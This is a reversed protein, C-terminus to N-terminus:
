KKRKQIETKELRGPGSGAGADMDKYSRYTRGGAKRPMPAPGAGPGGMPPAPMPPMPMQMPPGAQPQPPPPMQVPVGQPMPPQQMNPDMQPQGKGTVITINIDTKGNKKKTRGGSNMELAGLSGGYQKAIRGGVKEQTQMEGDLSTYGGHAKATRASQKFADATPAGKSGVKRMREKSGNAIREQKAHINAYLGGGNKKGAVPLSSETSPGDKKKGFAKYALAGLGGMLLSPNKAIANGAVGLAAYKGVDKLVGGLSKGTRGGKNLGKSSHQTDHKKDMKSKEWAAMSMGYKKALKKDQSEDKASGEWANGGRKYPMPKQQDYGLQEIAPNRPMPKQQQMAQDYGRQMAQQQMPRQMAQSQDGGRNRMSGYQGSEIDKRIDKVSSGGDKRGNRMADLVKSVAVPSPGTSNAMTRKQRNVDKGGMRRDEAALEAMTARKGSENYAGGGDQKMARGGTKLAGVHKKGERAENADKLNRNVLADVTLHKSGSRPKKGAHKKADAGAVAVVKGGKKYARRSIPRMGTKVESNLVEEPGYDSADVKGNNAATIRHIKARMARRANRSM